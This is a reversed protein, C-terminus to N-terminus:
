LLTALGDAALMSDEGGGKREEPEGEPFRHGPGAAAGLGMSGRYSGAESNASRFQLRARLQGLRRKGEEAIKVSDQIAQQAREKFEVPITEKLTQGLSAVNGKKHEMEEALEILPEPETETAAQKEVQDALSALEECESEMLRVKAEAAEREEGEGLAKEADELLNGCVEEGKAYWEEAVGRRWKCAEATRAISVKFDVKANEVAIKAVKIGKSFGGVTADRLGKACVQLHALSRAPADMDNYTRTAFAPSLTARKHTEVRKGLDDLQARISAMVRKAQGCGKELARKVIRNIMEESNIDLICCSTRIFDTEWISLPNQKSDM